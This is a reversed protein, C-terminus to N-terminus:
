GDIRDISRKDRFPRDLQRLEIKILLDILGCEVDSGVLYPGTGSTNLPASARGQISGHMGQVPLGTRFPCQYERCLYSERKTVRGGDPPCAHQIRLSVFFRLFM